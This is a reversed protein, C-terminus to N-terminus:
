GGKYPYLGITGEDNLYIPHAYDVRQDQRQLRQTHVTDPDLPVPTLLPMAMTHTPFLIPMSAALQKHKPQSPLVLNARIHPSHRRVRAISSSKDINEMIRLANAEDTFRALAGTAEDYSLKEISKSAKTWTFGIRRPTVPIIPIHRYAQKLHIIGLGARRLTDAQGKNRAFQEEFLERSEQQRDRRKIRQMAEQFASKHFNVTAALLITDPSTGLFGPRYLTARKDQQPQYFLQNYIWIVDYRNGGGEPHEPTAIWCPYDEAQQLLSDTLAQMATKLARYSERVDMDPFDKLQRKTGLSQIAQELSKEDLQMNNGAVRKSMGIIICEYRLGAM